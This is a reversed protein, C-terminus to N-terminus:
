TINALNHMNAAMKELIDEMEERARKPIKKKPFTKIQLKDNKISLTKIQTDGGVFPDMIEVGKIAYSALRAVDEVGLIGKKSLLAKLFLEAYAAGSGITGYDEIIDTIGTPYDSIARLNNDSTAGAVIASYSYEGIQTGFFKYRDIVYEKFLYSALAECIRESFDIIDLKRDLKEAVEQIAGRNIRDVFKDIFTSGGAGIMAVPHGLCEENEIIQVKNSYKRVPVGKTVTALSDCALVMGDSAHIAIGVTLPRKEHNRLPACKLSHYM